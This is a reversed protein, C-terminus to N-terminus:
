PVVGLAALLASPPAPLPLDGVSGLAFLLLAVPCRQGAHANPRAFTRLYDRLPREPAPPGVDLEAWSEQAQACLRERLAAADPHRATAALGLVAETLRTYAPTAGDMPPPRHALLALVADLADPAQGGAAARLEQALWRLIWGIIPEGPPAHAHLPRVLAPGLGPELRHIAERAVEEWGTLEPNGRTAQALLVAGAVAAWQSPEAILPERVLRDMAALVEQREVGVPEPAASGGDAAELRARLSKRADFALMARQIGAIREKPGPAAAAEALMYLVHGAAYTALREAQPVLSPPRAHAGRVAALARASLHLLPAWASWPDGCWSPIWGDVARIEGDEGIWLAGPALGGPVLVPPGDFRVASPDTEALLVDTMPQLATGGRRALEAWRLALSAWQEGWSAGSPYFRHPSALVGGDPQPHATLHDLVRGLARLALGPDGLADAPRGAPMGHLMAPCGLAALPLVIVPGAIPLGEDGELRHAAVGAGCVGSGVMDSLVVTLRTQAGSIDEIGYCGLAAPKRLALVRVPAPRGLSQYASAVPALLSAPSTPLFNLPNM